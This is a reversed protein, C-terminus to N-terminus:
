LIVGTADGVAIQAFDPRSLRVSFREVSEPPMLGDPCAFVTITRTQSTATSAPFVVSGAAAVFDNGPGCDSSSVDSKATGERTEFDVRVPQSTAGALIVPFTIMSGEAGAASGIHLGPGDDNLITFDSTPDSQPNANVVGSLTVTFRESAEATADGCVDLPISGHRSGVPVVRPTQTLRVYDANAAACTATGTANGDQTTAVFSIPKGSAVLDGDDPDVLIAILAHRTEGANGEARTLAQGFFLNPPPDNDTITATGQPTGTANTVSTIKVKFTESNEDPRDDCIPVTIIRSLAGPSISRPPSSVDFDGDGECDIDGEATGDITSWDFQVTRGSRASLSVTFTADSSESV